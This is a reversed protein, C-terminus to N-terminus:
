RHHDEYCNRENEWIANRGSGGAVFSVGLLPFTTESANDLPRYPDKRVPFLGERRARLGGAELRCPHIEM